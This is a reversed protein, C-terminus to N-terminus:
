RVTWRAAARRRAGNRASGLPDAWRAGGALVWGPARCRHSSAPSPGSRTWRRPSSARFVRDLGALRSRTWPTHGSECRAWTWRSRGGSRLAVGRPLEALQVQAHALGARPTPWRPSRTTRTSCHSRPRRPRASRGIDKWPQTVVLPGPQRARVVVRVTAPCRRKRRSDSATASMTHSVHPGPETTLTRSRSRPSSSSRRPGARAWGGLLARLQQDDRESGM